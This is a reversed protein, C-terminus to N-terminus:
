FRVFGFICSHVQGSLSFDPLRQLRPIFKPDCTGVLEGEPISDPLLESIEVVLGKMRAIDAYFKLVPNYNGGSNEHGGDLVMVRSLHRHIQLEDFLAGYWDQNFIVPGWFHERILWERISSGWIKSIWNLEMFHHKFDVVRKLWGTQYDVSVAEIASQNAQSGEGAMSDLATPSQSACCRDARLQVVQNRYITVASLITLVMGLALALPRARVLKPLSRERAKIWGLGDSVGLAAAIALFPLIPTVYWYIKTQASSLVILITAACSLCLMVLSRRRADTALATLAAFSVFLCAPEFSWLLVDVYFRPGKAHPGIVSSFRGGLESEWVAQLYGPDYQERSVYYGLCLILALFALLWIRFNGLLMVLRGRMLSFVLLGVLGFTGAVGKTMVALVLAAVSIAFWTTPVTGEGEISAWFALAYVLTFFAVPVDYDGTRAIHVNAYYLSSLLLFGALAAAVRDRLAYRCVAWVTGVTALAALMTPLRISLLPPLGLWMLSAMQWILLPPKPSWHDPIGDYSPILWHGNRVMELASNALRSEDWIQLPLLSYHLIFLCFWLMLIAIICLLDRGDLYACVPAVSLRATETSAGNLSLRSTPILSRRM